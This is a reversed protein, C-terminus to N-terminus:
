FKLGVLFHALAAARSDLTPLKIYEDNTHSGDGVPGLGDIIVLGERSFSNADGTGGTAEAEPATGEVEQIAKLYRALYPASKASFELPASEDAVSWETKSPTQDKQARIELKTLIAEIKKKLEHSTKFDVFRTDVKAEAHGCVINFKDKGGELHGISVSMGRKPDTLSSIQALKLSLELCANVGTAHDVGAHAERGSVKIHFWRNGKRAKVIAGNARAPEFGLVLESNKGYDSFIPTFGVSGTEESPAAVFRISFPPNPNEHLFKELGALAVVIGGKADAVGPGIATSGDASLKFGRFGASLEFVTDVHGLLTVTKESRGKLTGVLLQGSKSLSDPNNFREVTFGLTKLRKAVADQVRNVGESNASGSDIEVLERLFATPTKSEATALSSLLLLLLTKM